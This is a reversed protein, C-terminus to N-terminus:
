NKIIQLFSKLIDLLCLISCGISLSIVFITTSLTDILYIKTFLKEEIYLKCYIPMFFFCLIFFLNFHFSLFITGGLLINFFLAKGINNLNITEARKQM